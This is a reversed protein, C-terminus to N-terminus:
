VWAPLPLKRPLGRGPPRVTRYAGSVSLSTPSLTEPESVESGSEDLASLEVRMYCLPWSGSHSGTLRRLRSLFTSGPCTLM